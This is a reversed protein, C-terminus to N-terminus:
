ILMGGREGVCYIFMVSVYFSFVEEKFRQRAHLFTLFQVQHCISIVEATESPPPLLISFELDEEVVYHTQPWGPICLVKSKFFFFYFGWFM